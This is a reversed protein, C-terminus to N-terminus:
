GNDHNNYASEITAHRDSILCLNDQPVVHIRLHSLFFGWGGTTEGEVMAFAVPFVNNNDDQAVAILLTGKCKKYLWTGDIQIIPKYFIFGKICPQFEQEVVKKRAIWAKEYSPTYNDRTVIHYIIISAKMSPDKNILPLIDQCILEVSLKRRDQVINTATCSPPPEIYAIHWSDSRKRRSDTRKVNFDVSNDMHFNKIAQVCEEKTRFRVGKKLEGKPPLPARHNGDETNNNLMHDVQIENEEEEKDVVDVETEAEAENSNEAEFEDSEAQDIIHSQQFPITQQLTIYLGISNFGYHEHSVFMYEVVKDDRVLGIPSKKSFNYM